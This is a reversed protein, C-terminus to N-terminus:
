APGGSKAATEPLDKRPGDTWPVELEGRFEIVFAGLCLTAEREAVSALPWVSLVLVDGKGDPMAVAWRVIQVKPSPPPLLDFPSEGASLNNRGGAQWQRHIGSAAGWGIIPFVGHPADTATIIAIGGGRMPVLARGKVDVPYHCAEIHERINM